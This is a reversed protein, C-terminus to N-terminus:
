KGEFFEFNPDDAGNGDTFLIMYKRSNRRFDSLHSPLEDFLSNFQPPEGFLALEEISSHLARESSDNFSVHSKVQEGFSVM